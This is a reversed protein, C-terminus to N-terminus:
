PHPSTANPPTTANGWAWLLFALIPISLASLLLPTKATDWVFKLYTQQLQAIQREADAESIWGLKVKGQLRTVGYFYKLDSCCDSAMGYWFFLGLGALTVWLATAILFHRM